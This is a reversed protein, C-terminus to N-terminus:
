QRGIGRAVIALGVCHAGSKLLTRSAQCATACSTMVDDVLLVRKGKVLSANNIAFCNKVNQFRQHTSLMGQKSTRLRFYIMHDDTPLNTEKRVGEVIMSAVNFGRRLRRTWHIPMPLVLDFMQRGHFDETKEGLWRGMQIAIAERGPRKMDIVVERMLANYNGLSVTSAFPLSIGTCNACSEGKMLEFRIKAGCKHCPYMNAPSLQSQCADCILVRTPSTTHRLRKCESDLLTSCIVCSPPSLLDNVARNCNSVIESIRKFQTTM